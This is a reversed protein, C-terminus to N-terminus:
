LNDPRRADGQSYDCVGDPFIEGLQALQADTFDVDGYVGAAIAEEVSQLECKFVDGTIPGGAEIRTTTYTPFEETCQGAPGDDLIGNWVNEGSAILGGEANFCSDVAETPKNGAVGLEPNAEINRMWEDIVEFAMPTQDFEEAGFPVDTFWIVQNSADGDWDLLRQRAAFSQHSNHMDLERELYNRWDIVPIEINGHNVMGSTYAAEIAGPDAERRPAPTSAGPEFTQNRWSWPDIQEPYVGPIPPTVSPDISDCLQSIFPCGEQVMDPEQKWSGAQANVELFTDVDIDGDVMARLGYQVGVNDWTSRAYGDDATGYINILDGFHTWETSMQDEGSIGPATGFNPNLALPSLGRWGNICESSGSPYGPPMVAAFPNDVQNSANMGELLERNNWDAWFAQETPSGTLLKLDIYREMLECDGVHITQTIMDPYSYQPIAADILGKHNQAYVYQQIAGGSAGVGVTYDPNDYATVFRDKVMIATEGGLELNYHVGTKTGTSYAIAYGQSLGHEYLMRRASPGGQYHGIGVGGQFYYILRENWASLDPEAVDQADPSLVAISYIFRNITGREWRVIYDVTDGDMTTTTAMDTPEDAGPEYDAWSGGTTRYKFSTVTEMACDDDLIPGLEADARDGETACLFPEQQSGSFMPGSSPHNVLTVSAARPNNGSTAVRAARGQGTATVVLLNEGVALGDVVGELRREGHLEFAGTVDDGELTVRVKSMKVKPSVDIAVRAAGGSVLDPPSSLVEITFQEGRGEPLVDAPPGAGDPPGAETPPQGGAPAALSAVLLTVAVVTMLKNMRM